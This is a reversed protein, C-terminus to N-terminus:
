EIGPFPVKDTHVYQIKWGQKAEEIQCVYVPEGERIYKLYDKLWPVKAKGRDFMQVLNNIYTGVPTESEELFSVFGELDASALVPSTKAM